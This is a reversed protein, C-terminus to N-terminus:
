ALFKINKKRVNEFIVKRDDKDTNLYDIKIIDALDILPKYSESFVFDDLIILYGKNKLNRCSKIIESTAKVDELIEIGLLYRPIITAIEMNILNETFNIFGKKGATLDKIGISDLGGTIVEATAKDGDFKDSDRASSRFLLEYAFINENKDLIPQRAVSIQM